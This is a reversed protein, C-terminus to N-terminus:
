DSHRADAARMFSERAWDRVKEAIRVCKRSVPQAGLRPSRDRRRLTLRCRAQASTALALSGAVAAAAALCRFMNQM